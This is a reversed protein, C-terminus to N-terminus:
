HKKRSGDFNSTWYPSCAPSDLAWLGIDVLIRTLRWYKDSNQVFTFGDEPPYPNTTEGYAKISVEGTYGEKVLVSGIIERISRGEPVPFDTLDWLVSIKGEAHSTECNRFTSM